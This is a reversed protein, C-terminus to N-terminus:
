KNTEQKHYNSYFGTIPIRESHDLEFVLISGRPERFYWGHNLYSKLWADYIACSGGSDLMGAYVMGEGALKEALEPLTGEMQYIYVNKDFDLCLISHYFSEWSRNKKEFDTIIKKIRSEWEDYWGQYIYQLVTTSDRGLIQRIDYDHVAIEPASLPNNNIVLPVIGAAWLLGAKGLDTKDACDWVTDNNVDFKVQRFELKQNKDQDNQFCCVCWYDRDTVPEDEFFFTKHTGLGDKHFAPRFLNAVLDSIPVALLAPVSHFQESKQQNLASINPIINQQRMIELHRPIPIKQSDNQLRCPKNPDPIKKEDKYPHRRLYYNSRNLIEASAIHLYVRRLESNPICLKATRNISNKGINIQLNM